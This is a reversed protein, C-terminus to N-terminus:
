VLKFHFVLFELNQDRSGADIMTSILNWMLTHILALFFSFTCSREESVFLTERKPRGANSFTDRQAIKILTKDAVPSLRFQFWKSVPPHNVTTIVQTRRATECFPCLVKRSSASHFTLLPPLFRHMTQWQVSPLSDM